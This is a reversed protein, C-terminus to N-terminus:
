LDIRRTKFTKTPYICRRTFHLNAAYIHLKRKDSFRIKEFGFFCLIRLTKSSTMLVAYFFM